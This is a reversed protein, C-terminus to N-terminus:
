LNMINIEYLAFLLIILCGIALLIFYFPTNKISVDVSYTIESCRKYMDPVLYSMRFLIMKYHKQFLWFVDQDSLGKKDRAWSNMKEYNYRYKDRLYKDSYLYFFKDRLFLFQEEKAFFLCFYGHRPNNNTNKSIEFYRNSGEIKNEGIEKSLTIYLEYIYKQYDDYDEPMFKTYNFLIRSTYTLYSEFNIFNHKNTNTICEFFDKDSQEKM